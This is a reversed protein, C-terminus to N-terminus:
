EDAKQEKHEDSIVDEFGGRNRSNGMCTGPKRDDSIRIREAGVGNFKKKRLSSTVAINQM